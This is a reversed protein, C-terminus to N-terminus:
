SPPLNQSRKRDLSAKIIRLFTDRSNDALARSRNSHHLRRLALVERMLEVTVGAETARLFWDLDNGHQLEPRFVGIQDFVRSRALVTIASYGPIPQALRTGAFQRAEEALEPIWFNQIHGVSVDLDPRSAFRNLQQALKDGTWLDDAALFGVFEGTREQLGRNM